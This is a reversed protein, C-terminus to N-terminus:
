PTKRESKNTYPAARSQTLARMFFLSTGIESVGSFVGSADREPKILRARINGDSAIGPVCGHLAPALIPFTNLANQEFVNMDIHNVRRIAHGM